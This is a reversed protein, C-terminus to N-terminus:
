LQVAIGIRPNLTHIKQLRPRRHVSQSVSYEPTGPTGRTTTIQTTVADYRFSNTGRWDLGGLLYLKKSLLYRFSGGVSFNFAFAGESEQTLTATATDTISSGEFAPMVSYAVGIMGKTIFSLKPNKTAFFGYGGVMASALWWSGKDFKWNPYTKKPLPQTPDSTWFVPYINVDAFEEELKSTALPHNQGHLAFVLGFKKAVPFSYEVTLFPGTSAFGSRSNDVNKNGFDGLPFAPGVSFSLLRKDTASQSFSIFHTTLLVIFAFSIKKM